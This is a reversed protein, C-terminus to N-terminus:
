MSAELVTRFRRALEQLVSVAMEADGNLLRYFDWRLVAVCHTPETASVSATRQGEDLLAMEGFFDTPGFTNVVAQSGDPRQRIAEAKGSIVIFLGVGGEGQKVITEGAAFEREYSLKALNELQRTNLSRFVPVKQLFSIIEQQNM